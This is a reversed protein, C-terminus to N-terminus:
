EALPPISPALPPLSTHLEWPLCPTGPRCCPDLTHEGNQETSVHLVINKRDATLGVAHMDTTDCPPPQNIPHTLFLAASSTPFPAKFTFPIPVSIVQLSTDTSIVKHMSRKDNTSIDARQRLDNQNKKLYRAVEQHQVGTVDFKIPPQDHLRPTLMQAYIHGTRFGPLGVSPDHIQLGANLFIAHHLEQNDRQPESGLYFSQISESFAPRIHLPKGLCQTALQSGAANQLIPRANGHPHGNPPGFSAQTSRDELHYPPQSHEAKIHEITRQIQAATEGINAIPVEPPPRTSASQPYCDM